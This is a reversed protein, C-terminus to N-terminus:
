NLVYIVIAFFERWGGDTDHPFRRTVAALQGARTKYQMYIQGKFDDDGSLESMKTGVMESM